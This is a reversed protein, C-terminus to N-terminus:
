SRSSVERPARRRDVSGTIAEPPAPLACCTASASPTACAASSADIRCSSGAAARTAARRAARAPPAPRSSRASSGRDDLVRRRPRTSISAQISSSASRSCARSRRPTTRSGSARPARAALALRGAVREGDLLQAVVAVAVRQEHAHRGGPGRAVGARTESSRAPARACSRRARARAAPPSTCSPAARPPCRRTRACPRALLRDLDRDGREVLAVLADDLLRGVEDVVEVHQEGGAAEVDRLDLVTALLGVRFLAAPERLLAVHESTRSRPSDRATRGAHRRAVLRRPDPLAVARLARPPLPEDPERQPRDREALAIHYRHMLWLTLALSSALQRPNGLISADSTGVHEIGIATWNLGVTHRCITTLPVLQYITGDTDIVFHACTGPCSTCSRIPCTPPSPTGPRRSRPREGHLARRDCAAPALRWTHLGYHREAYAATESRRQAGFPIPKQIIQPKPPAGTAGILMLALGALIRM